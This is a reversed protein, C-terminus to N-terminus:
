IISGFDCSDPDIKQINEINLIIDTNNLVHIIYKKFLLFDSSELPFEGEIDGLYLLNQLFEKIYKKLQDPSSWIFQHETMALCNSKKQCYETLKKTIQKLYYGPSINSVMSTNGCVHVIENKIIGRDYLNDVFSTKGVGDYGYLLLIINKDNLSIISESLKEKVIKRDQNRNYFEMKKILYDSIIKLKIKLFVNYFIFFYIYKFSKSIDVM